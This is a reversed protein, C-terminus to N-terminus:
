LATDDFSRTPRLPQLSFGVSERTSWVRLTTALCNAIHHFHCGRKVLKRCNLIVVGSVPHGAMAHGSRTLCDGTRSGFFLHTLAEYTETFPAVVTPPKPISVSSARWQIRVETHSDTPQEDYYRAFRDRYVLVSVERAHGDLM